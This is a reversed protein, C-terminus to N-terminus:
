NRHVEKSAGLEGYQKDCAAALTNCCFGLADLQAIQEPTLKGAKRYQRLSSCRVGLSGDAQSVNCHGHVEKYAVLDAYTKDWAAVYFNWCFGIADLQAIREPSFKGRRQRINDCWTGLPGSDIPVNCNGNIEKYAVLEAGNKDWAAVFPDWCFGIADLQAIM